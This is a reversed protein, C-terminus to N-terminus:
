AEPKSLAKAQLLEVLDATELLPSIRLIGLYAHSDHADFKTPRM